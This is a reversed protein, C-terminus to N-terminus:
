NDIHIILAQPLEIDEGNLIDKFRDYILTNKGFSSSFYLQELEYFSYFFRM